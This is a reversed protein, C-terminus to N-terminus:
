RHLAIWDLYASVETHVAPYHASFVDGLGGWAWSTIGVLTGDMLFLPGQGPTSDYFDQDWTCINNGYTWDDWADRCAVDSIIQMESYYPWAPGTDVVSMGLYDNPEALDFHKKTPMPGDLHLIAINNRLTFSNFESHIDMGTVSSGELCSLLDKVDFDEAGFAQEQDDYFVVAQLLVTAEDLLAGYGVFEGQRNVRVIMGAYDALRDDPLECNTLIEDSDVSAFSGDSVTDQIIGYGDTDDTDALDGALPSVSDCGGVVFGGVLFMLVAISAASTCFTKM